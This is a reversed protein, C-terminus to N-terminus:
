LRLEFAQAAPSGIRLALAHDVDAILSRWDGPSRQRFLRMTPYWPSDARSEMWRWDANHALLTWVPVALAGALHAPMSDVTIVLDLGRMTRATLM